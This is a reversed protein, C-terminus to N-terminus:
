DTYSKYTPILMVHEGNKLLDKVADIGPINVWLGELARRIIKQFLVMSGQVVRRKISCNMQNLQAQANGTDLKIITNPNKHEFLGAKTKSTDNPSRNTHHVM